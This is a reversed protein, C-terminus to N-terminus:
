RPFLHRNHAAVEEFAAGQTRVVTIRGGVRYVRQSRVRVSVLPGQADARALVLHPNIPFRVVEYEVPRRADLGVDLAAVVAPASREGVLAAVLRERGIASVLLKDDAMRMDTGDRWGGIGVLHRLTGCDVGLAVAVTELPQWQEAPPSEHAPPSEGVPLDPAPTEQTNEAPTSPRNKKSM